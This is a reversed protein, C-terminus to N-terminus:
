FDAGRYVRSATILHGLLEAHSQEPSMAVPVSARAGGDFTAAKKAYRGDDDRPQARGSLLAALAQKREAKTAAVEAFLGPGVTPEPREEKAGILNAFGDASRELEEVTRGTVFAMAEAGLGRGAAIERRLTELEADPLASM